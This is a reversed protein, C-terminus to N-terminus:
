GHYGRIDSFVPRPLRKHCKVDATHDGNKTAKATPSRKTPVALAQSAM